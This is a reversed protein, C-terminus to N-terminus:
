YVQVSEEFYGFTVYEYLSDVDALTRYGIWQGRLLKSGLKEAVCKYTARMNMVSVTDLDSIPSFDDDFNGIVIQVSDYNAERDFFELSVAITDHLRVSDPKSVRLPMYEDLLKGDSDFSRFYYRYPSGDVNILYAESKVKGSDFPFYVAFNGALSGKRFNRSRAINGNPYFELFKGHPVGRFYHTISDIMGTKSYATCEGHLTDNVYFARSKMIGNDYFTIVEGNKMGNIIPTLAELTGNAHYTKRIEERPGCCVLTLSCFIAYWSCNMHRKM